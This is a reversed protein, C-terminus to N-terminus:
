NQKEDRIGEESTTKRCTLSLTVSTDWASFYFSLPKGLLLISVFAIMIKERM